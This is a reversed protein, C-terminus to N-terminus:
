EYETSYKLNEADVYRIAVKRFEASFKITSISYLIVWLYDWSQKVDPDKLYETIFTATFTKIVKLEVFWLLFALMGFFALLVFTWLANKVSRDELVINELM